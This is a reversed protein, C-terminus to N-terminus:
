KYGRLARWLGTAAQFRPSAISKGGDEELERHAPSLPLFPRRNRTQPSPSSLDVTGHRPLPPPFASPEMDPSLPLFPLLNRTQPALSSLCFTRHRKQGCPGARAYPLRHLLLFPERSPEAPHSAGHTTLFPPGSALGATHVHCMSVNDKPVGVNECAHVRVCVCTHACVHM